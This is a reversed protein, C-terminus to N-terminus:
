TTDNNDDNETGDSGPVIGDNDDAVNVDNDNNDDGLIILDEDDNDDKKDPVTNAIAAGTVTTNKSIMDPNSWCYAWERFEIRVQDIRVIWEKLRDISEQNYEKAKNIYSRRRSEDLSTWQIAASNMLLAADVASEEQAPFVKKREEGVFMVYPSIWRPLYEYMIKASRYQETLVREQNKLWRLITDYKEMKASCIELWCKTTFNRPRFKTYTRAIWKNLILQLLVIAAPPRIVHYQFYDNWQQFVSSLAESSTIKSISQESPRIKQEDLKSRIWICDHARRSYKCILSLVATPIHKLPEVNSLVCLMHNNVRLRENVQYTATSPVVSEMYPVTIENMITRADSSEDICISQSRDNVDGHDIDDGDNIQVVADASAQQQEMIFHVSLIFFEAVLVLVSPTFVIVANVIFLLIQRCTTM